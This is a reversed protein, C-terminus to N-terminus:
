LDYRGLDEDLRASEAAPVEEAPAAAAPRRRRWRPITLGLALAALLVAGIPVLYAALSFGNKEPLALVNRGYTAVLADKVQGKTKCQAILTRIYAREREAQPSESINLPTGCVLCMVEDEVDPLSARPCALAASAAPGLLLLAALLAAVARGRTSTM